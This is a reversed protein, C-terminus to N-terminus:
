LDLIGAIRKLDNDSKFSIVINGGGANQKEISIKAKFHDAMDEQMKQEEFSLVSTATKKQSKVKSKQSGKKVPYNRAYEEIRRVSLKNNLIENLIKTQAQADNVSLLARAHGMTIKKDRLAAQISEPLKLLRLFNTVTSRDQGVKQSLQEQTFNCEEILRKYGLAIEIANLDERQLNEVLAMELMTKDNAIRIFAPIQNLGALQSARFRREGSIIQFKNIGVKRVTIPQILGYEEISRSLEALAQKEFENRPQFPNAEIQSLSVNVVTGALAVNGSAIRPTLALDSGSDELLAGLGKGLSSRKVM